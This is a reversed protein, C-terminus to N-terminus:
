RPTASVNSAPHFDDGEILPLNLHAAILQGVASKGCGAVGMVVVRICAGPPQAPAFATPLVDVDSMAFNHRGTGTGHPPKIADTCDAWPQLIKARLM